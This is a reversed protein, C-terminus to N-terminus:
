IPLQKLSFWINTAPSRRQPCLLLRASPCPVASACTPVLTVAAALCRAHLDSRFYEGMGEEIGAAYKEPVQALVEDTLHDGLAVLLREVFTEEEKSLLERRARSQMGVLAYAQSRIQSCELSAM